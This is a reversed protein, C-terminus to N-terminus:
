ILVLWHQASAPNQATVTVDGLFEPSQSFYAIVTAHAVLDAQAYAATGPTLNALMPNIVNLYFAVAGTEPARHLLNNYTDTIFQTEGAQTQAYNHGAAAYEPSSLFYESYTIVDVSPNTAAYAEYFGLGPVDPQRDFVAAYLTTIQASSVAGAVHTQSAVIETVDSFQIAQIGSLHDAMGGETVTFGSGNGDSTITYSSATDSFVVTNGLANHVGTISESTGSATQTVSFNGSIANLAAADASAQASTIAIIPIAASDTLTVSVLKGAAAISELGDLSASVNAASDQIAVGHLAQLQGADAIAASATLGSVTIKAIVQADVTSQAATFVPLAGDTITISEIEGNLSYAQLYDIAKAVNFAIDQISVEIGALTGSISPTLTQTDLLGSVQDVPVGTWDVQHRNTIAALFGDVNAVSLPSSDNYSNHYPVAITLTGSDTLTITSFKYYSPSNPFYLENVNPRKTLTTLAANLDALSGTATLGSIYGNMVEDAVAQRISLTDSVTITVGTGFGSRGGITSGVLAAAAPDKDIQAQTLTLTQSESQGGDYPIVSIASLKGAAALPELTDLAALVENPGDSIGISVNTLSGLQEAQAVTAGIVGLTYSGQFLAVVAQDGAAQTATLSLSPSTTDSFTVSGIKGAAAIPELQDLDALVNASSDLIVAAGLDIGQAAASLVQQATYTTM